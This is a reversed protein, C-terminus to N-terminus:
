KCLGRYEPYNERILKKWEETENHGSLDTKNYVLLVTVSRRDPCWAVICRNGSMKASENSKAIKFKTKIIKVTGDDSVSITEAKDTKLLGDMRELEAIIAQLTVDWHSLYKKAFLKLFHSEAYKEITVSYNGQM